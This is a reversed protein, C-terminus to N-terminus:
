EQPSRFKKKMGKALKGATRWDDVLKGLARWADEDEIERRQLRGVIADMEGVEEISVEEQLIEILTVMESPLAQYLSNREAKMVIDDKAEVTTGNKKKTRTEDNQKERNEEAELQRLKTDMAKRLVTQKTMRIAFEESNLEADLESTRNRYDEYSMKAKLWSLKADTVEGLEDPHPNEM